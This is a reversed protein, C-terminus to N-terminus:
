CFMESASIPIDAEASAKLRSFDPQDPQANPNAILYKAQKITTPAMDGFYDPEAEENEAVNKHAM